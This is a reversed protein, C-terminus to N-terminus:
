CQTQAVAAYNRSLNCVYKEQPSVAAKTRKPVSSFTHASYKLAMKILSIVCLCCLSTFRVASLRGCSLSERLLLLFLPTSGVEGRSPLHANAM